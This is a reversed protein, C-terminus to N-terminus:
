SAFFRGEKDLFYNKQFIDSRRSGASGSFDFQRGLFSMARAVFRIFLYLASALKEFFSYSSFYNKVDKWKLDSFFGRKFGSKIFIFIMSVFPDTGFFLRFKTWYNRYQSRFLGEYPIRESYYSRLIRGASTWDIILNHPKNKNKFNETKIYATENTLILYEYKHMVKLLFIIGTLHGKSHLKRLEEPTSPPLNLYIDEIYAASELFDSRRFLALPTFTGGLATKYVNRIYFSKLIKDGKPMFENMFQFRNDPMAELTIIKAAVCAADPNAEFQRVVTEIYNMSLWDDDGLLQTYVGNALRPLEALSRTYGINSANKFYKVRSDKAAYGKVVAETNDTSADDLVIVEISRYTQHICSELAHAIFKEGNWLTIVISVLPQRM